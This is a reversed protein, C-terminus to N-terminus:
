DTTKRLTNDCNHDRHFSRWLVFINRTRIVSLKAYWVWHRVTPRDAPLWQTSNLFSHTGYCILKEKNSVAKKSSSRKLCRFTCYTINHVLFMHKPSWKSETQYSIFWFCKIYIYLCTNGDFINQYCFCKEKYLDQNNPRSYLLNLKCSVITLWLEIEWKRSIYM